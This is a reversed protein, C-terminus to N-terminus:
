GKPSSKRAERRRAFIRKDHVTRLQVHVKDLAQEAARDLEIGTGHADLHTDRGSVRVHATHGAGDPALTMEYRTTEPFEEAFARCRTDIRDRVDDDADIDRFSIVVTPDAAM